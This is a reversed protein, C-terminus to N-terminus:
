LHLSGHFSGMGGEGKIGQGWGGSEKGQSASQGEHLQYPMFLLHSILLSPYAVQM